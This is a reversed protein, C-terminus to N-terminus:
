ESYVCTASPWTHLIEGTVQEEIVNLSSDIATQSTVIHQLLRTECAAQHEEKTDETKSSFVLLLTLIRSCRYCEM